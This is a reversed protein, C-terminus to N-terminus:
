GWEIHRHELFIAYETKRLADVVAEATAVSRHRGGTCGIGITLRYRGEEAYLPVCFLLFETFKELFEKGQQNQFVYGSVEKNKGTLPRLREDFYPNPLFRLDFVMDAEAPAGYKFGFSIVNVRMAAANAEVGAGAWQQQLKRRLDHVSYHSSDVVVAANDRFVQLMSREEEISQELGLGEKELPHPRRTSAYRRVLEPTRAELFVIQPRGSENLEQIMAKWDEVFDRQRLDMGVALGRYHRQNEGAFLAALKPALSAPLGDVAFFRMDEFVNLATSKGAGSLGTVIVLPFSAQQQPADNM